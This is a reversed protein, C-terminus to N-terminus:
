ALLSMPGLSQLSCNMTGHLLTLLSLSPLSGLQPTSFCLMPLHLLPVVLEPVLTAMLAMLPPGGAANPVGIGPGERSQRQKLNVLLLPSRRGDLPMTLPSGTPPTPLCVLLDKPAMNEMDKVM